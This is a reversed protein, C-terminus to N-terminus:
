TEKYTFRLPQQKWSFSVADSDITLKLKFGRSKAEAVMSKFRSEKDSVRRRVLDAACEALFQAQQCHIGNGISDLQYRIESRWNNLDNM